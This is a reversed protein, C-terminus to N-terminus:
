NAGTELQEAKAKQQRMRAVIAFARPGYVMGAAAFLQIAAGTKGDFNLGYEDCVATIAKALHAGEEPTIALEPLGTMMAAIQHVGAIQKGLSETDVSKAKATKRPRSAPAAGGVEETPIEPTKRPRGRRKKPEESVVTELPENQQGLGEFTEIVEQHEM